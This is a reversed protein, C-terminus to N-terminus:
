LLGSILTDLVLDVEARVAPEPARALYLSAGYLATEPSGENQGATRLV